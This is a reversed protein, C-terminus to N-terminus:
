GRSALAIRILGASHLNECWSLDLETLCSFNGLLSWGDIDM